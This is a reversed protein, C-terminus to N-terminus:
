IHVSSSWGTGEPVNGQENHEKGCVPEALHGVLLRPPAGVLV